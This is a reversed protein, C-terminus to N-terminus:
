CRNSKNNNNNYQASTTISRLIDVVNSKKMSESWYVRIPRYNGITKNYFSLVIEFFNKEYLYLVYYIIASETM